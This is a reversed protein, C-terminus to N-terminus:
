LIHTNIQVSHITEFIDIARGETIIILKLNVENPFQYSNGIGKHSIYRCLCMYITSTHTHIHM